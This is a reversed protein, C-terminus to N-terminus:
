RVSPVQLTPAGPLIVAKVENSNVSELSNLSSRAIYFYSQGVSVNNDAFTLGIIPALNLKVYGSGAVQTRYVNYGLGATADVSPNWSLDVGHPPPSQAFVAYSCLLMITLLLFKKM